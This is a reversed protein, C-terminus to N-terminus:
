VVCVYQCLFDPTSSLKGPSLNQQEEALAELVFAQSKSQSLERAERTASITFYDIEATLPGPEIGPDPLDGPSNSALGGWYEQRSFDM